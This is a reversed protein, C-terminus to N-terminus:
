RKKRRKAKILDSNYSAVLAFSAGIYYILGGALVIMGGRFGNARHREVITSIPVEVCEELCIIATDNIKNYEVWKDHMEVSSNLMVVGGGAVLGAMGVTLVIIAIATMNLYKIKEDDTMKLNM